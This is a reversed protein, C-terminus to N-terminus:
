TGCGNIRSKRGQLAAYAGFPESATTDDGPIDVTEMVDTNDFTAADDEPVEAALVLDFGQHDLVDDPLQAVEDPTLEPDPDDAPANACGVFLCMAVLTTRM